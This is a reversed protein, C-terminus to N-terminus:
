SINNGADSDIKVTVAMLVDSASGADTVGWGSVEAQTGAPFDDGAAPLKVGAVASYTPFYNKFM